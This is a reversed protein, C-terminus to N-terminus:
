VPKVALFNRGDSRLTSIDGPVVEFGISQSFNSHDLRGLRMTVFDDPNVPTDPTADNLGEISLTASYDDVGEPLPPLRLFPMLLDGNKDAQGKYTQSGLGPITITATVIAWPLPTDDSDRALTMRVGGGRNFSVAVPAPYLLLAHGAPPADGATVSFIRPLYRGAPDTIKGALAYTGPSTFTKDAEDPKQDVISSQSQRWFVTKGSGHRISLDRPSQTLELQLPNTIRRMKETTEETSGDLWFIQDSAHLITSEFVNVSRM